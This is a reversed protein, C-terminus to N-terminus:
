ILPQPQGGQIVTADLSSPLFRYGYPRGNIPVNVLQNRAANGVYALDAAMRFPLERQVGLSWNYVNPPVFGPIYDASQPSATLPNGLLANITTYNTTFTDTLGPMEVLSLITDDGFRDFFLGAGGRIATKGDGTVDWAFGLRPAVKVGPNPMVTENVYQM